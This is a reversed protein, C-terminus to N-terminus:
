LDRMDRFGKFIPCRPLNKTGIEQYKYIIMRGLYKNQNNWIEKRLKDTLGVGTGIRFTFYNSGINGTVIFNGLTDKGIKGEKSSSRKAYGLADEELVNINEMQEEFGIVTAEADKFRKIKTLYGEKETSRGCKYPSNPQRIMIGEYGLHLQEAEYLQLQKLTNLETVPVFVCFSPQLSIKDSLIDKRNHSHPNLVSALMDLRHIYPFALYNGHVCDFIWYEFDPEGDRSMVGSVTAQFNHRNRGYGTPVILEGDLGDPLKKMQKQIHTNSIEKFSRSVSRGNIRLCRIGDIKPTALVPFKIKNIDTCTAALMPKTIM